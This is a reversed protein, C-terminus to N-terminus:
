FRWSRGEDLKRPRRKGHFPVFRKIWDVYATEARLSQLSLKLHPSSASPALKDLM